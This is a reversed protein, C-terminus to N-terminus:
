RGGFPARGLVKRFASPFDELIDTPALSIEGFRKVARDAALGHLYVAARAAHFAPLGQGLFAAIMGTLLDGSGGKALGPNGTPNVETRGDPAATVTHHGKLVLVVGYRRSMEKAWAKRGRDDTPVRTGFLRSAEGPHPTLITEAKIKKLLGPSGEFANLGDADVLLAKDWALVVRRVLKETERNRGLGPGIAIVDQTKAFRRVADEARLSFSGAKTQPFARCMVESLKLTMIRFLGEPVGLTILGAGARLAAVSVLYPAGPYDRSGALIFVRGYDGKHSSPKRPPFYKRFEGPTM